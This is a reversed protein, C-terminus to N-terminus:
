PAGVDRDPPRETWVSIGGDESGSLLVMGELDTRTILTGASALIGLLHDTPHGYTNHRGVSIVGVRAHLREYLRPAQDASGHHAVKVVDVPAPHATGLMRLQSQEGLDGLFLSSLCGGDCSGTGDFRVTVSAANGAEVTGLRSPPWLVEWSMDGLTGRAGRAVETVTAGAAQLSARLQVDSSESVPGVLAHEVRGLVASTGGVHDLDYHSLILLDIREIGLATLCDSLAEPQPGTDVLAVQGRSRVLVADGQGIDCAAIQWSSPIAGARGLATGALAGAYSVASLLLASAIVRTSRSPRRFVVVLALATILAISVAGALGPLWPAQAGPAASFFSAIAAIWASPVWAVALVTHGVAPVFALSVCAILGLVTAVPAAPEALLNAIVGYAPIAPNLLILVPQCALQAALPISILIALPPPLWRSLVRALPGSLVLLGATALVSLLFGYDRSLWPDFALLLIVALCLVPVGRTPRGGALAFLVLAAMVAARLVSADPTVVVVFGALVVLALAIRLVRSAGVAAGLLMILGVVVACNAGSVATLHSLATAKMADDLSDSVASTDGIALGPLLAGGDGPLDAASSRFQARLENSWDLFWPPAELTHASGRAFILLATRDGAATQAVTGSVSVRAGIGNPPITGFVLAPIALGELRSRGVGLTTVTVPTRAAQTRHGSGHPTVEADVIVTATVYRNSKAADVLLDPNRAATHMAGSTLLAASVALVVALTALTVKRRRLLIAAAIVVGAGAWASTAALGLIEPFGLFVGVAVTGVVAPLVLRADTM